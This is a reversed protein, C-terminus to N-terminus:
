ERHPGDKVQEIHSCFRSPFNSQQDSFNEFSTGNFRSIGQMSGIWLYGYRDQALATLQNSPLGDASTYLRFNDKLTQTSAPYFSFCLANLMLLLFRRMNVQVTDTYYSHLSKM